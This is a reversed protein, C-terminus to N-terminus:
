LKREPVGGSQKLLCCGLLYRKLKNSTATAKPNIGAIESDTYGPLPITNTIVVEEFPSKDIRAM